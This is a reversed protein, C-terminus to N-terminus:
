VAAVGEVRGVGGILRQRRALRQSHDNGIPDAVAVAAKGRCRQRNVDGPGVVKGDDGADRLHARNGLVAHLDGRPLDGGGVDIM